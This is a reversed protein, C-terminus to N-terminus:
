IRNFIRNNKLYRTLFLYFLSQVTTELWNSKKKKEHSYTHDSFYSSKISDWFLISLMTRVSRSLKQKNKVLTACLLCKLWHFTGVPM